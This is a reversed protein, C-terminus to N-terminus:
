QWPSFNRTVMHGSTDQQGFSLVATEEADTALKTGDNGVSASVVGGETRIQLRFKVAGTGRYNAWTRGINQPLAITM